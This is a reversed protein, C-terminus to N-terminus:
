LGVVSLFHPFDGIKRVTFLQLSGFRVTRQFNVFVFFEPNWTQQGEFYLNQIYIGGWSYSTANKKVYIRGMLLELYPKCPIGVKLM